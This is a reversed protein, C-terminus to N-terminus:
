DKLHKNVFEVFANDGDKLADMMALMKLSKRFSPDAINELLLTKVLENKTNSTAHLLISLKRIPHDVEEDEAYSDLYKECIENFVYGLADDELILSRVNKALYDIKENM